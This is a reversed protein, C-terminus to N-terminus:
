PLQTKKKYKIMDRIRHYMIPNTVKVNKTFLTYGFGLLIYGALIYVMRTTYQPKAPSEPLNNFYISIKDILYLLVSKIYIFDDKDEMVQFSYTTIIANIVYRILDEHTSTQKTFIPFGSDYTHAFHYTPNNNKFYVMVNDFVTQKHRNYHESWSINENDIYSLYKNFLKKPVPKGKNVYGRIRKICDYYKGWDEKEVRLYNYKNNIEVFPSVLAM